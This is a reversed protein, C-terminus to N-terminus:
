AQVNLQMEGVVNGVPNYMCVHYTAKGYKADFIGDCLSVACGLQTTSKWVVQTFHSFTPNSPDYRENVFLEVARQATFRGAGAALNEGYPGVEGNSHRFECRNAWTQAVEALESSWTLPSAGHEVRVLNHAYLYTAIERPGTTPVPISRSFSPRSKSAVVSDQSPSAIPSTTVLVTSSFSPQTSLVKSTVAPVESSVVPASSSSGQTSRPPSSSSISSPAPSETESSQISPLPSPSSASVPTAVPTEIVPSSVEVSTLDEVNISLGESVPTPASLVSAVLAFLVLVHFFM